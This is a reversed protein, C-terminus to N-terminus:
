LLVFALMISSADKGFKVILNLAIRQALNTKVLISSLIIATPGPALDTTTPAPRVM